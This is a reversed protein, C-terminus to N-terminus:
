ADQAERSFLQARRPRFNVLQGASFEAKVQKLEPTLLCTLEFEDVLAKLYLDKGIRSLGKVVAGFGGRECIELDEPRIALWARPPYPASLKLDNLKLRDHSREIILEVGNVQVPLLNISPNGIFQAAFLSAPQDYLLDPSEFQVVRGDQMLVIRDAISLAEEQDHTVFITTIGLSKQLSRIDERLEIRLRADLNSFPEDMLLIQPNKVIARAIAVRQQQGGSLESPRRHRLDAIQLLSTMEEFRRKQEAKKAKQMKLPFVVNEYVSMHPYLAYNQFVMGIDRAQPDLDNVREDGFYIDGTTPTELGAIMALSTTKGCGSPGLLCILEGDHFHLDIHDVALVGPFQKSLNVLRIDM